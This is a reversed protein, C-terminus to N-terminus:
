YKWRYVCVRTNTYNCKANPIANIRGVGTVSVIGQTPHSKVVLGVNQILNPVGNIEGHPVVNSLGGPVTNSVYVTEGEIFNPTAIGDARGFTVILGSDGSNINQYAIGIAPMKTPDRADARVVNFTDNGTTGTACVVEGKLINQGDARANLFLHNQKQNVWNTGDYVLMDENIPTALTVDNLQAINVGVNSTLNTVFATTPNTFQLTNSTVNGNDSVEQLTAAINSLLGGDGRFVDATVNGGVLVNSLVELGTVPNNLYLTETTVNGNLAIQQLNSAINSLLGGDGAFSLATVNGGVLVNNTVYYCM